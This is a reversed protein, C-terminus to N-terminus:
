VFWFVFVNVIMVFVLEVCAESSDHPTFCVGVYYVCGCLNDLNSFLHVWVNYLGLFSCM